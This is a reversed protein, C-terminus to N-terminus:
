HMGTVNLWVGEKVGVGCLRGVLKSDEWWTGMGNEHLYKFILTKNSHLFIFVPQM